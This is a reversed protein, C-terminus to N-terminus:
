SATSQFIAWRGASSSPITSVVVIARCEFPHQIQPPAMVAEAPNIRTNMATNRTGFISPTHSVYRLVEEQWRDSLLTTSNSYCSAVRRRRGDHRRRRFEPATPAQASQQRSCLQCSVSRGLRSTLQTSPSCTRPLGLRWHCFAEVDHYKKRTQM